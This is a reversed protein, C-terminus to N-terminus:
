GIEIIRDVTSELKSHQMHSVFLITKGEKKLEGLMSIVMDANLSDLASTIEDLILIPSSRLVARLFNIRGREGGSLNKGEEGASKIQELKGLRLRNLLHKTDKPAEDSSNPYLINNMLTDDHLFVNQGAYSLTNRLENKPYSNIDKGFIMIRGNEVPYFGMVTRLLSTKGCGSQGKILILEGQKCSFSLNKIVEKGKLSLSLGNVSIPEVSASGNKQPLPAPADNEEEGDFFSNIRKASAIGIQITQYYNAMNRVPAFFKNTYDMLVALMGIPLTGQMIKGAAYVIVGTTGMIRITGETPFFLSMSIIGKKKHSFSEGTKKNFRNQEYNQGNLAKVTEYGSLTQELVSTLEADSQQLNEAIRKQSNATKISVLYLLPLSAALLLFVFPEVFIIFFSIWILDFLDSFLTYFPRSFINELRRADNMLTHIISGKPTDTYKIFSLRLTKAFLKRRIALIITECLIEAFYCFAIRFFIAILSFMLFFAICVLAPNFESLDGFSSLFATLHRYASANDTKGALIDILSGIFQIPVVSLLSSVVSMLLCALLLIKSTDAYKIIKFISNM